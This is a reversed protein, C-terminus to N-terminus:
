QILITFEVRRNAARGAATRNTDIPEDPGVTRLELRTPDIQDHHLLHRLVAENRARAIATRAEATGGERDDTHASLEIRMGPVKHLLSGVFEVRTRAERSLTRARRLEPSAPGAWAADIQRVGALVAARHSAAAIRNTILTDLLAVLERRRGDPDPGVAAAAAARAHELTVPAPDDRLVLALEALAGAFRHDVDPTAGTDRAVARAPKKGRISATLLEAGVTAGAAPTVELLYTTVRGPAADIPLPGRLQGAEDGLVRIASVKAPDVVLHLQADRAVPPGRRSERLLADTVARADVARVHRGGGAEALRRLPADRVITPGVDLVTLGTGTAAESRARRLPAPDGLDERDIDAWGTTLVILKRRATAARESRLLTYALDLGKRDSAIDLGDGLRQIGGRIAGVDTGAVLPLVIGSASLFRAVAVRDQDGLGAAFAAVAEEGASSRFVTEDYLRSSMEVLLVVHRPTATTERAQVRVRVLRAQPQWPCPGVDTTITFPDGTTPAHTDPDGFFAALLEQLRIDDPPPRLGMALFRRLHEYAATDDIVVAPPPGADMLDGFPVSRPSGDVPRFPNRPIEDPCGDEDGFGNRTEARDPCRDDPDLIGDGDTDPIPCGDPEVGPDDPCRDVERTFGDGDGDVATPPAARQAVAPAHVPPRPPPCALLALLVSACLTAGRLGAIRLAMLVWYAM